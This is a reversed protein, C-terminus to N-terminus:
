DSVNQNENAPPPAEAMESLLATFEPFDSPDFAGSELSAAAEAAERRAEDPRGAAHLLEALAIRTRILARRGQEPLASFIEISERLLREAQSHDGLDALVGAYSKISMGVDYNGPGLSIREWAVVDALIDRAAPLDGKAKLVMALEYMPYTLDPHGTDFIQEAISVSRRAANEAEPWMGQQQYIRSLLNVTAAVRPHIEGFVAERMDIAELAYREAAAVEGGRSHHWALNHLALATKAHPSDFLAERYALAQELYQRAEEKHDLEEHILGLNSIADSWEESMPNGSQEFTEIARSIMTTAEDHRSLLRYLDGLDNRARAIAALDDPTYMALLEVASQQAGLATEYEALGKYVSALTELTRAKVVPADSLEDDVRALGVDLIERVSRERGASTDPNAEEFISVLFASVAGASRAEEAALQEAQRANVFGIATAITGGVIALLTATIGLAAIRNRRWYRSLVYALTPPRAVIPRHDLFHQLDQSLELASQYRAEPQKRLAKLVITDLDGRLRKRLSPASRSSPAPPTTTTVISELRAATTAEPIDYPFERTLLEYLLVGLSYVDSATTITQGLIQEPSAHRPTLLRAGHVTLGGGGPLAGPDILKAIGFDLLKPVGDATVLINSPKLDRHIVLNSHAYHVANCVQRFLAICAELGPEQQRCYEDIPIGDVYEMVLFPVDDDTTGGDLLMAVNPHQLNALIQREGMFRRRLDDPALRTMLIKIAVQQEFQEDSRRALYVLGMGGEALKREVTYAGVQKGVWRDPGASSLGQAAMGIADRLTDRHKDGELLQVVAHRLADEGSCQEDLFAARDPDDLEVCALFLAEAKKWLSPDM